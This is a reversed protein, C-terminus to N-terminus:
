LSKRMVVKLSEEFGLGLKFKLLGLNPEMDVTSTGVDMVRFGQMQAYRYITDAVAVVPSSTAYEPRDGWYFVYLISPSLRLCYAAAALHNENSCGFLVIDEPFTDVMLQLQVLSMSLTNGKIARNIVLTEYVLPLDSLPLQRAVLGERECKRLRKRNSYSMRESLSREDINLSQNLDCRIMEFGCSRLLYVQKSFAVPDYAQPAPLVELVNAGKSRLASEVSKFFLFLENLDTDELFGLGSFTGRAPSRWAGDDDVSTFHIHAKVKGKHCLEFYCASSRAHLHFFAHSQFLFVPDSGVFGNEVITYDSM